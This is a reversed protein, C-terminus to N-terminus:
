FYTNYCWIPIFPYLINKTYNWMYIQVVPLCLSLLKYTTREPSTVTKEQLKWIHLMYSCTSNKYASFLIIVKLISIFFDRTGFAKPECHVSASGRWTTRELNPTTKQSQWTSKPHSLLSLRPSHVATASKLFLQSETALGPTTGAPVEPQAPSGANQVPSTAWHGQVSPSM